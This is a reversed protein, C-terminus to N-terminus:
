GACQRAGVTLGFGYLQLASYNISFATELRRMLRGARLIRLLKTLKLLRLVRLVLVYPHLHTPPHLAPQTLSPQAIAKVFVM